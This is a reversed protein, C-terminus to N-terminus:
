MCLLVAYVIPHTFADKAPLYFHETAGRNPVETTLVMLGVDALARFHKSTSRLPAPLEKSAMSPSLPRGSDVAIKLIRRREPHRLADLLEQVVTGQAQQVSEAM